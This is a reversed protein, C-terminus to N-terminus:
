YVLFNHSCVFLPPLPFSCLSKDKWLQTCNAQHLSSSPFGSAEAKHGGFLIHKCSSPTACTLLKGCGWKPTILDGQGAWLPSPSPSCSGATSPGGLTSGAGPADIGLSSSAYSRTELARSSPHLETIHFFINQFPDLSTSDTQLPWSHSNPMISEKRDHSDAMVVQAKADLLDFCGELPKEM